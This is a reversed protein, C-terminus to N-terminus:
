DVAGVAIAVIEDMTMERGRAVARDFEAGAHVLVPASYADREDEWQGIPGAEEDLEVAAWLLGGREADGSEAAIRALLAFCYVRHMRAGARHSVAVADRLVRDADAPRKLELLWEGLRALQGSEWWDFGM